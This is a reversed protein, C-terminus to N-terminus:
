YVSGPFVSAANNMELLKYCNVNVIRDNIFCLLFIIDRHDNNYYYHQQQIDCSMVTQHDCVFLACLFRYISTYVCTSIGDYTYYCLIFVM